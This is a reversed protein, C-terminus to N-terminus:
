EKMNLLNNLEHEKNTSYKNKGRRLYKSITNVKCYIQKKIKLCEGSTFLKCIIYYSKM